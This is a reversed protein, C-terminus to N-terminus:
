RTMTKKEFSGFNDLVNNARRASCSYALNQEKHYKVIDLTNAHQKTQQLQTALCSCSVMTIHLPFTLDWWALTIWTSHSKQCVKLSVIPSLITLVSDERMPYSQLFFCDM